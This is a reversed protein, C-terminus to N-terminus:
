FMAHKCWIPFIYQIKMDYITAHDSRNGLISFAVQKRNFSSTSHNIERNQVYIPVLCSTGPLMFVREEGQHSFLLVVCTLMLGIEIVIMKLCKIDKVAEM